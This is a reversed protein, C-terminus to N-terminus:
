RHVSVDWAGEKIVYHQNLPGPLPKDMIWLAFNCISTTGEMNRNFTSPHREWDEKTERGRRDEGEQGGKWPGWKVRM